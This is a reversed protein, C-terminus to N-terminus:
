PAEICVHQGLANVQVICDPKPKPKPNPSPEPSPNPGPGPPSPGPKPPPSPPAPHHGGGPPSNGPPAGSRGGGKVPQGLLVRLRHELRDIAVNIRSDIFTRCGLSDQCEVTQKPRFVHSVGPIDVVMGLGILTTALLGAVLGAIVIRRITRESV